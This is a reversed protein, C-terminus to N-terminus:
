TFSPQKFIELMTPKKAVTKGPSRAIEAKDLELKACIIVSEQFAGWFAWAMGQVSRITVISRHSGRLNLM